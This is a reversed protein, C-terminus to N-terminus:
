TAVSITAHRPCVPRDVVDRDDHGVEFCREREICPSQPHRQEVAFRNPILADLRHTDRRAVGCDFQQAREVRARRDRAKTAIRRCLQM